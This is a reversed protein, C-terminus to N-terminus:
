IKEKMGLLLEALRERLAELTTSNDIIVDCRHEFEEESLQKKMIAEAKDRTYGRSQILRQIRVEKDTYIGWICDCLKDCGTEFLLATELVVLPEEEWEKLQKKIREKVHPHIIRNLQERKRDDGFIFQALAMRNLEGNEGKMHEGFLSLIEEYAATGKKMVEHGMDDAILIKAHYDEKLLKMVTSKGCGVGGTVGIIM